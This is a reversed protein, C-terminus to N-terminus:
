DFFFRSLNRIVDCDNRSYTTRHIRQQLDRKVIYCEYTFTAFHSFNAWSDSNSECTVSISPFAKCAYACVCTDKKISQLFLESFMQAPLTIEDPASVRDSKVTVNQSVLLLLM